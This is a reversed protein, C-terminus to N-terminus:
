FKFYVGLLPGYQSTDYKVGNRDYDVSLFRFGAAAGWNDGIDYTVVTTVGWEFDAAAGFGGISGSAALAWRPAPTFRVAAGILPDVFTEEHSVSVSQLINGTLRVETDLSWIRAGAYADLQGDDNRFVTYGAALTSTLVSAEVKGRSFLNGPTGASDSLKAYAIDGLLSFDGHRAEGALFGAFDLNRLIDGFSMDVEAPPVGPITGVDGSLGAMWTYPAVTFSWADDSQAAQPLLLVGLGALLVFHRATV